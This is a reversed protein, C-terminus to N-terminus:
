TSNVTQLLRAPCRAPWLRWVYRTKGTGVGLLEEPVRGFVRASEQRVQQCRVVLSQGEGPGVVVNM